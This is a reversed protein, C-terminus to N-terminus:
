TVQKAIMRDICERANKYGAHTGGCFEAKLVSHSEPNSTIEEDLLQWPGRVTQHYMYASPIAWDHKHATHISQLFEFIDFARQYEFDDPLVEHFAPRLVKFIYDSVPSRSSSFGPLGNFTKTEHECHALAHSLPEEEEHKRVVVENLLKFVGDFKDKGALGVGAAYLMLRAPHGQVSNTCGNPTSNLVWRTIKIWSELNHLNSDWYSGAAIVSFIIESLSDYAQINLPDSDPFQGSNQIPRSRLTCILKEAEHRLLDYLQISHRPESIYRKALNVAVKVSVPHLRDSGDLADIEASMKEFFEDADSIKVVEAKCHDVLRKAEAILEGRTAWWTTYRRNRRREIATALAGDWQGSWGCVILGYEDLVKDLLKNMRRDYKDLETLTNKTRPDLYDGHLKVVTCRSHVLPVAGVAQAPTSIVAPSIGAEELAREMLRDFNTTLILRVSGRIVLQAIAKHARTPNRDGKSSEDHMPEFYQQLIRSREAPKKGVQELIYSYGPKVGYKDRFWLDPSESCEDGSAAALQRILDIIIEWGTPIGAARSVGSGLLLAYVGPNSHMSMALAIHQEM